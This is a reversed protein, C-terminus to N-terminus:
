KGEHTFYEDYCLRTAIVTWELRCMRLCVCIGRKLIDFEAIHTINGYSFLEMSNLWATDHSATGTLLQSFMHM